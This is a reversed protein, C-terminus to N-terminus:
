CKCDFSIHDRTVKGEKNTRMNFAKLDIVETKKSCMNKSFLFQFNWSM